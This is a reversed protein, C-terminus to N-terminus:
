LTQLFDAFKSLLWFCVLVLILMVADLPVERLM